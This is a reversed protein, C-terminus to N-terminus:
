KKRRRKPRAKSGVPKALKKVAASQQQRVASVAASTWLGAIRNAWSLMISRPSGKM